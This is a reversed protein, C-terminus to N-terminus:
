VEQREGSRVKVGNLNVYRRRGGGGGRVGVDPRRRSSTNVRGRGCEWGEQKGRSPVNVPSPMVERGLNDRSIVVARTEDDFACM